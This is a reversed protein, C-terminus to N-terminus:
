QHNFLIIFIFIIDIVNEMLIHHKMIVGLVRQQEEQDLAPAAQVMALVVQGLALLVQVLVLGQALDQVQVLALEEMKDKFAELQM